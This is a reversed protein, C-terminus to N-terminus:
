AEWKKKKKKGRSICVSKRKCNSHLQLHTARNHRHQSPSPPPQSGRRHRATCHLPLLAWKRAQHRALKTRATRFGVKGNLQLITQTVRERRRQHRGDGWARWNKSSELNREGVKNWVERKERIHHVTSSGLHTLKYNKLNHHRKNKSSKNIIGASSHSVWNILLVLYWCSSFVRMYKFQVFM